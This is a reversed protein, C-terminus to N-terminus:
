TAPQPSTTQIRPILTAIILKDQQRSSALTGSTRSVPPVTPKPCVLAVLFMSLFISLMLLALKLGKTYVFDDEPEISPAPPAGM